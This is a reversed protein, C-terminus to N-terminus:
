YTHVTNPKSCKFLHRSTEHATYAERPVSMRSATGAATQEAGQSAAARARTSRPVSGHPCTLMAEGARRM